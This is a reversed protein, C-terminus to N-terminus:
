EADRVKPTLNLGRRSQMRSSLKQLDRRSLRARAIPLLIANEAALHHRLHGSFRALVEREAASLESGADLCRALAARLDPLLRCADSLATTIRAIAGGINDEATCRRTLLPYLDETDDRMHVNLEENVFRLVSRAAPADFAKAGVLGDIVGCIQRERLHDQFLFELPKALLTVDTPCVEDGRRTQRSLVPKM